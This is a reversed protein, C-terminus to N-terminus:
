GSTRRRPAWANEHGAGLGLSSWGAAGTEFSGNPLLNKGGLPAVTHTFRVMEQTASGRSAALGMGGLAFCLPLLAIREIHLNMLNHGKLTNM